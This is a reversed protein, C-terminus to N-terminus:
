VTQFKFWHILIDLKVIVLSMRNTKGMIGELNQMGNQRM